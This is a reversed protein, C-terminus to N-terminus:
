HRERARSTRSARRREARETRSTGATRRAPRKVAEEEAQVAEPEFTPEEPRNLEEDTLVPKAPPEPKKKVPQWLTDAALMAICSVPNDRVYRSFCSIIRKAFDSYKKEELIIGLDCLAIAAMANPNPLSHMDEGSRLTAFINADQSTLIMTGQKEDFCKTTILEALSKAAEQWENLQKEPVNFHKMAKCLEVIGWLFYAYDEALAPIEAKGDIWRRRWNGSKDPLTKQLFLATREAMDRWESQEFAVSAHALAGIMLGNWNMLVKNDSRLPYRKDRADLLVKRAASLRAGVEAPKLGFRKALDKVTSAEYLINMGIQAGAVESSFNGSPLVAYAGCFLGFDAEGLIRRIEDETWLYYRGEGDPTDGDISARLGQSFSAADCFDRMVCFIIDEAFLRHFSNQNNEQALSVAFLLMAQDCLLKEFHPVLWHEDVAYRSFGGGLHDHIGGRWMRRLTIDTMTLADLKDRNSASSSERAQLMLFALKTPEPFKPAPGFGGWRLDFISRLDNLAEWAAYSGIRSSRYKTSALDELRQNVMAALDSATKEIFDRQMHWMWKIRPLLETIGPMMGTTRKPLWTTCFFPRGEPTLFINLPYGASGNQVRCVETFLQDIDPREERDICVPICADNIFGAVEPNAFCDRSMVHCWHNSSYGISVFLPMDESKAAMFADNGWSFWGVPDSAHLQLYPSLEAALHNVPVFAKRQAPSQAQAIVEESYEGYAALGSFLESNNLLGNNTQM